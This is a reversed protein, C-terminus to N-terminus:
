IGKWPLLDNVRTIKYDPIHAMCAVEKIGHDRYLEEYGAYGLAVSLRCAKTPPFM